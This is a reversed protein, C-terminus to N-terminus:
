KGSTEHHGVRCVITMGCPLVPSAGSPVRGTGPM